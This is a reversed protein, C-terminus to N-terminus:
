WNSERPEKSNTARYIADDCEFRFKYYINYKKYKKIIRIEAEFHAPFEINCDNRYGWWLIGVGKIQDDDVLRLDDWEIGDIWKKRGDWRPDAFSLKTMLLYTINSGLTNKCEKTFAGEVVSPLCELLTDKLFEEEDIIRRKPDKHRMCENLPLHPM